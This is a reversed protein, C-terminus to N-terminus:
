PLNNQNSDLYSSLFVLVWQRPLPNGFDQDTLEFRAAQALPKHPQM